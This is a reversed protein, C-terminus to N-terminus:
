VPDSEAIRADIGETGKVALQVTQALGSRLAIDVTKKFSNGSRRMEEQLLAAVDDDLSVTM